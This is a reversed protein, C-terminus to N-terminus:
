RIKLLVWYIALKFLEPLDDVVWTAAPSEATPPHDQQSEADAPAPREPLSFPTALFAMEM